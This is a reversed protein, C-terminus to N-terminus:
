GEEDRDDDSGPERDTFHPPPPEGVPLPLAPAKRKNKAAIERIRACDEEPTPM